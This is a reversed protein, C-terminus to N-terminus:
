FASADQEVRRQNYHLFYNEDILGDFDNDVGDFAIKMRYNKEM